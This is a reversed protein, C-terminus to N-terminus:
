STPPPESINRLEVLKDMVNDERDNSLPMDEPTDPTYTTLLNVWASLSNQTM